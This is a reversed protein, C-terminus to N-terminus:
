GPFEYEKTRFFTISITKSIIAKRKGDGMVGV